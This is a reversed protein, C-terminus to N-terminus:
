QQTKFKKKAIRKEEVPIVQEFRLRDVSPKWMLGPRFHLRVKRINASTFETKKEAGTSSLEYRFRGFDGLDVMDGDALHEGTKRILARLVNLVDGDTLSTSYSIEDAIRNLDIVERVQAKAYYKEPDTPQQPNKLKMLSYKISM